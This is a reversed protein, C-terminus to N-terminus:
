YEMSGKGKKYWKKMFSSSMKFYDKKIKGRRTYNHVASGPDVYYKKGNLYVFCFYHEVYKNGKRTSYIKGENIGAKLGMYECLTAYYSAMYSCTGTLRQFCYLSTGPHDNDQRYLKNGHSKVHEMSYEIEGAEERVDCDEKYDNIEDSMKSLDYILKLGDPPYKKKANSGYKDKAEYEYVCNKAMWKFIAYAIEEDSMSDKLKADRAMLKLLYDVNEDGSLIKKRKSTQSSGSDSSKETVTITCKLTKKGVKVKVVAKGAEKATVRYQKKSIKKLSLVDTDSVTWKPKKSTGKVKLTISKGTELSATKKSLKAAAQASLPFLLCLMCVALTFLASRLLNVHKIRQYM